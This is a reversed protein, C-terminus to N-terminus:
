KVKSNSPFSEVRVVINTFIYKENQNYIQLYIITM